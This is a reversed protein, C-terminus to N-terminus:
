FRNVLGVAVVFMRGTSSPTANFGDGVTATAEIVHGIGATGLTKGLARTYGQLAYVLTRKSLAYSESVTVEHYRAGDTIGNANSAKTYNYGTALMLSPTVQWHVLGGFVNFIETTAFSSGTGAIYQVNSYSGNIGVTPTIEYGATVAIRQQAAATQFGNNVASIGPLGASNVTSDAGWVGGGPTANNMRFVGAAIGVPGNAYQVAGSWASGRNFAGAVGGVGYLASFTLGSINPSTYVLANNVRYTTDFGDIDGPHAGVGGTLYKIQAYPFLLLYYPTYQRGATVTGYHDNSLGVYAQRGFIGGLSLAGNFGTFGTELWFVAKNGAGLDETGRFGLRSGIWVGSTARVASHGNTTSGLTTQSNQYSLGGDIIGFLVVSSQAFAPTASALLTAIASTCLLTKKM